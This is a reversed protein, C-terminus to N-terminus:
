LKSQKRKIPAPVPTTTEAKPVPVAEFEYNCLDKDCCCYFTLKSGNGHAGQMGNSRSICEDRGVCDKDNQFCGSFEILKESSNVIQTWSVFCGLNVSSDNVECNEVRVNKKKKDKLETGDNNSTTCGGPGCATKQHHNQHQYCQLGWSPQITITCGPIFFFNAFMFM